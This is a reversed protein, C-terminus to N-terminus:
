LWEEKDSVGKKNYREYKITMNAKKVFKTGTFKGDKNNPQIQPYKQYASKSRTKKKKKKTDPM